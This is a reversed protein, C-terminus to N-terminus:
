PIFSNRNKRCILKNNRWHCRRRTPSLTKKRRRRTPSGTSPPRNNSDLVPSLTRTTPPNSEGTFSCVGESVCVGGEGGCTTGRPVKQRVFSNPLNFFTCYGYTGYECYLDKCAIDGKNARPCSGTINISYKGSLSIQKCLIDHSLCKGAFCRGELNYQTCPLYNTQSVPPCTLDGTCLSDKSCSSITDRKLCVHKDELLYPACTKPDCCPGQLPSCLNRLKCTKPDCCPDECSTDEGCDCEEGPDILNNGCSPHQSDFCGDRYGPYYTCTNQSLCDYPFGEIFMKFWTESCTDWLYNTGSIFASMVSATQQMCPTIKEATDLATGQLYNNTHRIGLTHGLEHALTKAVAASSFMTEVVSIGGRCYSSMTAIGVTSGPLVETGTLLMVTNFKKLLGTNFAWTSFAQLVGTSSLTRLEWPLLLVEKQLSLHTVGSLEVKVRYERRGLDDMIDQLILVIDATSSYLLDKDGGLAELRLNDTVIGVGVYSSTILERNRLEPVEDVEVLECDHKYTTINVIEEEEKYVVREGYSSNGTGRVWFM